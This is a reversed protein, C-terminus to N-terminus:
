TFYPAVYKEQLSYEYSFLMEHMDQSFITSYIVHLQKELIQLAFISSKLFM